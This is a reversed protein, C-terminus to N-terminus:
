AVWGSQAERRENLVRRLADLDVGIELCSEKLRQVYRMLIVDDRHADAFDFQLSTLVLFPSNLSCVLHLSMNTWREFIDKLPLAETHMILALEDISVSFRSLFSQVEPSSM